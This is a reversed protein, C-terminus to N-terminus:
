IESKTFHSLSIPMSDNYVRNDISKLTDLWFRKRGANLNISEDM